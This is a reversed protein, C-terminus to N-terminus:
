NNIQSIEEIMSFFDDTNVSNEDFIYAYINNYPKLSIYSSNMYGGGLQLGYESDDIYTYYEPLFGIIIKKNGSIIANLKQQLEENNNNNNILYNNENINYKLDISSLMEQMIHKREKIYDYPNDTKKYTTRESIWIGNNPLHNNIYKEFDTTNLIEDCGLLYAINAQAMIDQNFKKEVGNITLGSDNPLSNVKTNSEIDTNSRTIEQNQIKNEIINQTNEITSNNSSIIYDNTIQEENDESNILNNDNKVNSLSNKIQIIIGTLIFIILVVIILIIIKKKKM